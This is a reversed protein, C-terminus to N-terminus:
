ALVAGKVATGAIQMIDKDAGSIRMLGAIVLIGGILIKLGRTLLGTYNGFNLTWNSSAANAAANAAAEASKEPAGSAGEGSAVQNVGSVIDGAAKLANILGNVVGPSPTSSAAM